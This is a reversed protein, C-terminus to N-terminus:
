VSKATLQTSVRLQTHSQSALSSHNKTRPLPNSGRFGQPVPAEPCVRRQSHETRREWPRVFRGRQGLKARFFGRPLKACIRDLQLQSNLRLNTLPGCIPCIGYSTRSCSALQHLYLSLLTFAMRTLCNPGGSTICSSSTASRIGPGPCTTTRTLAAPTLGTSEYM